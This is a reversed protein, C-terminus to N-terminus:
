QWYDLVAYLMTLGDFKTKITNEQTFNVSLNIMLELYTIEWSYM